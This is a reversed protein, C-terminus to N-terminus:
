VISSPVTVRRSRSLRSCTRTGASSNGSRRAALSASGHCLGFSAQASAERRVRLASLASARLCACRCRMGRGRLYVVCRGAGRRHHGAPAGCPGGKRQVSLRHRRCCRLPLRGRGASGALVSHGRSTSCLWRALGPLHRRGRALPHPRTVSAGCQRPWFAGSALDRISYSRDGCRNRRTESPARM